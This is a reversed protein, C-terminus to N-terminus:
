VSLLCVNSLVSSEGKDGIMTVLEGFSEPQVNHVNRICLKRLKHTRELILRMAGVDIAVDRELGDLIFESLGTQSIFRSLM